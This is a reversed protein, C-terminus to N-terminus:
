RGYDAAAALGLGAPNLANPDAPPTVSYAMQLLDRATTPAMQSGRAGERALYQAALGEMMPGLFKATIADMAAPELVKAQATARETRDIADKNAENRAAAARIPLLTVADLTQMAPGMIQSAGIAGGIGAGAVLAGKKTFLQKLGHGAAQSVTMAEIKAAEAARAAPSGFLVNKLKAFGRGIPGAAKAAKPIARVAGAMPGFAVGAPGMMASSKLQEVIFPPRNLEEWDVEGAVVKELLKLTEADKIYLNGEADETTYRAAAKANPGFVETWEQLTWPTALAQNVRQQPSLKKLFETKLKQSVADLEKKAPQKPKQGTLLEDDQNVGVTAKGSKLRQLQALAGSDKIYFNGDADQTFWEVTNAIPEDQLYVGGTGGRRLEIGFAEELEKPTWPTALAQNLRQQPSLKKLFEEKLKKSKAM